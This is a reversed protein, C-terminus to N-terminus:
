LYAITTMACLLLIIHEIVLRLMVRAVGLVVDSVQRESALFLELLQRTVETYAFLLAQSRRGRGGYGDTRNLLFGHRCQRSTTAM